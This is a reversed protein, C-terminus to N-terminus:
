SACLRARQPWASLCPEHEGRSRAQGPGVVAGRNHGRAAPVAPKRVPEVYRGVVAGNPSSRRESFGLQADGTPAGLRHYAARGARMPLQPQVPVMPLERRRLGAREIAAGTDRSPHCGGGSFPWVEADPSPSSCAGCDKSHRESTSTSACNAERRIVRFLGRLATEPTVFPASFSRYSRPM